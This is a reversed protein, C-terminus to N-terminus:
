FAGINKYISCKTIIESTKKKNLKGNCFCFFTVVWILYMFM